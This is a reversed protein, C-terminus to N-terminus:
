LETYLCDLLKPCINLFFLFLHPNFGFRYISVFGLCFFWTLCIESCIISEHDVNLNTWRTWMVFSPTATKLEILYPALVSILHSEIGLSTGPGLVKKFFSICDSISLSGRRGETFCAKPETPNDLLADAEEDRIPGIDVTSGDSSSCISLKQLSSWVTGKLM